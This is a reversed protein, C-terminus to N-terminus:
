TRFTAGVPPTMLVTVPPPPAASPTTCAHPGGTAYAIPHDFGVLVPLLQPPAGTGSSMLRTYWKRFTDTCPLRTVTVGVSSRPRVNSM